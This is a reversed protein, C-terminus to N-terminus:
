KLIGPLPPLQSGPIPPISPKSPLEPLNMGPRPPLSMEPTEPLSITPMEPLKPLDMGPRPPLLDTINLQNLNSPVNPTKPPSPIINYGSFNPSKKASEMKSSLNNKLDMLKNQLEILKGDAELVTNSSLTQSVTNLMSDISKISDGYSNSQEKPNKNSEASFGGPIGKGSVVDIKIPEAGDKIKGGDVGPAFGGGTVFVRRSMLAHLNDRLIYLQELEVPMQTQSPSETGADEHSHRYWHTHAILWNCLAYLWNVTTQGLLAPESTQDYEGLYIAPSNLVTKVNTNMVIQDHADVTYESDTVVSYRKKSYHFTEGYRSSLVLRDTNIVIQDGNLIPYKFKSSGLPSYATQEEKGDEFMQKYCTTVWKTITVGSTIAITSGDHNINEEIFGGLNKEFKTGIIPPLKEHPKYEKGIPQIPRQRNRIVIMPNGGGAFDGTNPNVVGTAVYDKLKSDSKDNERRNDYASFRISQGFRSEITLDGEYKKISRINKNILFYRGLVGEFGYNSRNKDKYRSVSLPGQYPKNQTNLERNGQKVGKDDKYGGLLPELGFSEHSNIFNSNNIKRTYFTQGMYKVVSVIENVLPYEIINSELPYAWILKEKEVERQTETLRVLARGIWTYDVDTNLPKDGIVDSQWFQNDIKTIEKNKFIEHNEDLVVDLVVATEFEYFEDRNGGTTSVNAYNDLSQYNKGSTTKWFSM